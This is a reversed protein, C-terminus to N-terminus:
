TSVRLKRRATSGAARDQREVVGQVAAADAVDEGAVFLAGPEDRPMARTVPRAATQRAVEPGPAM